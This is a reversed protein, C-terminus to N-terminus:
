QTAVLLQLLPPRVRCPVAALPLRLLLEPLLPQHTALLPQAVGAQARPQLVLLVLHQQQPLLV